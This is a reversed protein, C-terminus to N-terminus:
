DIRYVIFKFMKKQEPKLVVSAKFRKLAGAQTLAAVKVTQVVKEKEKHFLAVKYLNMKAM